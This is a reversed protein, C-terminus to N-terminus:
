KTWDTHTPKNNKWLGLLAMMGVNWNQDAPSVTIGINAHRKEARALRRSFQWSRVKLVLRGMATAATIM